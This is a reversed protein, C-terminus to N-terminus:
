SLVPLAGKEVGCAQLVGFDVMRRVLSLDIRIGQETLIAELAKETPRGDFYHLVRALPEPMLLPDFPSYGVVKYASGEVGTFRFESLRLREPIAESTLHAYADSVLGALIRVRPGCVQEVQEWTLPEVLRACARYFDIERGAWDGWLKRYQAWDIEGALESVHPMSRSGMEDVEAYGAKLEALCWLELDEEVERLLKDALKWFRYGTDGRVHKCYWTACVGPRHKWVGCDGTPSLYHCRLAPARGFVNPTSRYLLPFLGGPGARSPTIMVRRSIRQELTQRAEAIFPDSDSLIRGALFNPLNPQFACCKTERHFYTAEPDSGPSPLMACQDCTAKTEGPIPGGTIARLWSAYLLPLAAEPTM